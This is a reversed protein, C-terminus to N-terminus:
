SFACALPMALIRETSFPLNISNDIGSLRTKVFLRNDLVVLVVLKEGTWRIGSYVQRGILGWKRKGIYDAILEQKM